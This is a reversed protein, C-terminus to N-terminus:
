PRRRERVLMRAWMDPAVTGNPMFSRRPVKGGEPLRVEYNLLLHALILKITDSAFERGPCVQAGGGWHSVDPGVSAFQHQTEQGPQQRKVYSRLPNFEDPDPGYFTPNNAIHHADVCILTGAPISPGLSLTLPQLTKRCVTLYIFPKTRVAERMFSDMKKLKYLDAHTLRKPDSVVQLLEERLEDMLDPRTILEVFIFYATASSSPTSFFAIRVYDDAIDDLTPRQDPGYRSLLWSTVPVKNKKNEAPKEQDYYERFDQELIPRLLRKMYWAVARAPLFALTSLLPRLPRPMVNLFFHAVMVFVPLRQVSRLWRPDTALAPDVLGTSNTITVLEQVASYIPFSKWDACSSGFTTHFARHADQQRQPVRAPSARMLDTSVVKYMPSNDPAFIHWGTFVTSHHWEVLSVQSTSLRKVEEFCSAPYVVYEVGAEKMIYPSNPHQHAAEKLLAEYNWRHIGKPVKLVPIGRRRLVSSQSQIRDFVAVVVLVLTALISTKALLGLEVWSQATNYRTRRLFLVLLDKWSVRLPGIASQMAEYQEAATALQSKLFHWM